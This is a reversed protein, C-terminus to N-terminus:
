DKVSVLAQIAKLMYQFSPSINRDIDLYPALTEAVSLKSM